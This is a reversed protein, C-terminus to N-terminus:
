VILSEIRLKLIRFKWRYKKPITHVIVSLLYLNCCNAVRKGEKTQLLLKRVNESWLTQLTRNRSRM